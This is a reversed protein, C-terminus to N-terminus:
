RKRKTAKKAIRKTKGKKKVPKKAAQKKRAPKTGALGKLQDRVYQEFDDRLLDVPGWIPFTIEHIGLYPARHHVDCLVWLNDEGHDIWDLVQQQAFNNRYDARDPHQRRLSPLLRANFYDVDVANALAWEIVHHHTEMQRAGFINKTDDHLTSNRVGCILCPRDQEVTLKHHVAKYAPTERRADHAPYFAREDLRRHNEHYSTTAAKARKYVKLQDRLRQQMNTDKPATM